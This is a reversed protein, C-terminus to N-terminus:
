ALTALFSSLYCLFQLYIFTHFLVLYIFSFNTFYNNALHLFVSVRVNDISLYGCVDGKSYDIEILTDNKEYTSSKSSSYKKHSVLLHVMMHSQTIQERIVM